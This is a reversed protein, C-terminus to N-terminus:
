HGKKRLPGQSKPSGESEPRTRDQQVSAAKAAGRGNRRKGAEATEALKRLRQMRDLWYAEIVAAAPGLAGRDTRYWRERGKMRVSVLGAERLVKLHQSVGSFSINTAQAIEGARLEREWALALIERRRAASLINM